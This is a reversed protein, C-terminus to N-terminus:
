KNAMASNASPLITGCQEAVFCRNKKKIKKKKGASASLYYIIVPIASLSKCCLEQLTYQWIRASLSIIYLFLSPTTIITDPLLSNIWIVALPFQGLHQCKCAYREVPLHLQFLADKHQKHKSCRCIAFCLTLQIICLINDICLPFM